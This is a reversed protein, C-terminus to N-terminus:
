FADAADIGAYPNAEKRKSNENLYSEFKSGFLTEPRLYKQYDTGIWGACKKDIVEKFDDVSFGDNLRAVIHRRTAETKARYKTGAKENLYLVIEEVEETYRQPKEATNINDKDLEKEIDIDTRSVNTESNTKSNTKCAIERQKQRYEQMYGKMYKRKNELADLSQHKGWNPITITDNVIEVMGFQEFTKLAFRVTNVPRRFITSLMEDTYPICNNLLLVGGNNTKGALCLLKFWIVIISDRDPMSEILLIKEDDFIDTVIKIWKVEAM